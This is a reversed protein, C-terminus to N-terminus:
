AREAAVAFGTTAATGPRSARPSTVLPAAALPLGHTDIMGFRGMDGSAPAAARKDPGRDLPVADKGPGPDVFPHEREGKGVEDVRLYPFIRHDVKCGHLHFRRMADHGDRRSAAVRQGIQRRVRCLDYGDVKVRRMNRQVPQLDRRSLVQRVILREIRKEPFGAAPCVRFEVIPVDGPAEIGSRAREPVPTVNEAAAADTVEGVPKMSITKEATEDGGTMHGRLEIAAIRALHHPRTRQAFLARDIFRFQLRKELLPEHASNEIVPSRQETQSNRGRLVISEGTPTGHMFHDFLPQAAERAIEIELVVVEGPLGEGPPITRPLIRGQRRIQFPSVEFGDAIASVADLHAVNGERVLEGAPRRSM